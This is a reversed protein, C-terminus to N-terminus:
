RRIEAKLAALVEDARWGNGRWIAVVRGDRDVLATCLTHDLTAGNRETYVSFARALATVDDTAGTVFRWFAPDAGIAEGYSKLVAPRDFEPDLTISLLRATPALAPDKRIAAQLEGFRIAMAPCYAPVPCRSFVFTLVTARGRLEATSFPKADETLLGFDPVTDGERLRHQRSAVAPAAPAAPEERGTILFDGVTWVDGQTRLVFRVRDGPKLGAAERPEAADFKMTMAPMLGPIDEHAIRIQGSGDLPARIVGTVNYSEGKTAARSIAPLALLSLSLLFFRTFSQM